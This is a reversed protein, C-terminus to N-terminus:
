IVKLTEKVMDGEGHLKDVLKTTKRDICDDDVCVELSCTTTELGTQEAVGKGEDLKLEATTMVGDSSSIPM